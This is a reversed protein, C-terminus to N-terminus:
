VSPFLEPDPLLSGLNLRARRRCSYKSRQDSVHKQAEIEEDLFPALLAGAECPKPSQSPTLHSTRATNVYDARLKGDAATFRSHPVCCTPCKAGNQGGLSERPYVKDNKNELHSFQLQDLKIQSLRFSTFPCSRQLLVKMPMKYLEMSERQLIFLIFEQKLLKINNQKTATQHPM